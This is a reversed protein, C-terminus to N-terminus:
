EQETEKEIGTTAKADNDLLLKKLRQYMFSIVLLLIGLSIFAAIKGGESLNRLDFLFLKLLTIGLLSISIIRINKSKWKMGIYIYLFAFCGWLIAYGTKHANELIDYISKTKSYQLVVMLHDLEASAMYIIFFSAVWQFAYLAPESKSQRIFVYLYYLATCALVVVAYHFLYNGLNGDPGQLYANRLSITEFNYIFLYCATTVALLAGVIFKYQEHLHDKVAVALAILYLYNFSGMILVQTQPFYVASQYSLEFCLICYGLVVCVISIVTRATKIQDFLISRIETKLLRSYLILSALVVFGTIFGKNLIPRLLIPKQMTSTHISWYAQQWDMILSVTMLAIVLISAQRILTIGSKQSLWLLLVSEAAWFLTIYNGDLQVPGALTVFTLVLGILLYILNRDVKDNKYLSYAFILNIVGMAATFLGRYDGGGIHDLIYMGAGYYLFTNSLLIGIEFANFDTKEKINNIINMGLFVLYFLTAFILAGMYPAPTGKSQVVHLQLWSGFLIITFVYCIINVISWKKYYALILMGINLTLIYSFLVIYNGSGNSVMFPAGFGGLIAFIALEKRDYSLSLLVTFATILITIIFAVTQSFLHYQQYGITVTFYLIAIGGGVLVSSFTAFSKRMRHALGILAGGCLIGISIRGIENIWDKDIAYKLFFGMGLVLIVIGIKNFLNEGIFKELDPNRESFSPKRVPPTYERVFQPQADAAIRAVPEPDTVFAAEPVLEPTEVPVPTEVTPPINVVPKESEAPPVPESVVPEPVIPQNTITPEPAVPEPNIPEPNVPAPFPRSFPSEQAPQVPIEPQRYHTAPQFTTPAETTREPNSWEPATVDRTNIDPASGKAAIRANLEEIQRYLFDLKEGLTNKLQMVIILLLIVTILVITELFM